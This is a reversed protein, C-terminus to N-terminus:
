ARSAAELDAIVIKQMGMFAANVAAANPGSMLEAFRSPIIQWSLGFRDILWGCQSEQGGNATLAQWLEDVRDQEGADVSLSFAPTLAYHPGGNLALYDRGEMQWSVVFARGDPGRSVNHVTGEFLTLYFAVAEEANDNFWLFPTITTAIAM